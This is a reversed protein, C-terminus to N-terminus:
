PRGSLVASRWATGSAAWGGDDSMIANALNSDSVASRLENIRAVAESKLRAADRAIQIEGAREIHPVRRDLADILEGLAAIVRATSGRTPPQDSM